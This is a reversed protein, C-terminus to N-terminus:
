EALLINGDDVTLSGSMDIGDGPQYQVGRLVTVAARFTMSATGNTVAGQWYTESLTRGRFQDTVDLVAIQAATVASVMDGDTQLEMTASAMTVARQVISWTGTWGTFDFGVNNERYTMRLQIAEGQTLTIPALIIM